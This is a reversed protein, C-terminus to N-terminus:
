LFIFCKNSHGTTWIPRKCTLIFIHSDEKGSQPHVWICARNEWSVENLSVLDWRDSFTIEARLDLGWLQLLDVSRETCKECDELLFGCLLFNNSVFSTALMFDEERDVQYQYYCWPKHLGELLGRRNNCALWGYTCYSLYPWTSPDKQVPMLRRMVIMM